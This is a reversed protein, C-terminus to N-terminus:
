LKCVRYNLVFTNTTHGGSLLTAVGTDGGCFFSFELVAVSLKKLEGYGLWELKIRILCRRSIVVPDDREPSSFVPPTFLSRSKRGTLRYIECVICSLAMTVISPLYSVVGLSEFPVLKLWRSHGKLWIELDHVWPIIWRWIVRLHYLPPSISLWVHHIAACQKWHGQVVGFGSKM